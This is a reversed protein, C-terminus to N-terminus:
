LECSKFCHGCDRCKHHRVPRPSSTIVTRSSGCSPCQLRTSARYAVPKPQDTEPKGPAPATMELATSWVKHCFRCKRKAWPKNWHQFRAIVESHRCQCQPCAPGTIERLIM